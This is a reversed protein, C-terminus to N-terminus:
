VVSIDQRARDRVRREEWAAAANGSQSTTESVMTVHYITLTGAARRVPSNAVLLSGNVILIGM